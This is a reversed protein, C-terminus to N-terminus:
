LCYIKNVNLTPQIIPRERPQTKTSPKNQLRLIRIRSLLFM